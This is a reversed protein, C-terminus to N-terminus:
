NFETLNAISNGMRRQVLAIISSLPACHIYAVQIPFSNCFIHGCMTATPDDCPDRLCIRCYLPSQGNTAASPVEAHDNQDPLSELSTVVSPLRVCSSAASSPQSPASTAVLYARNERVYEPISNASVFVISHDSLPSSPTSSRDADSFYGTSGESTMPSHLPRNESHLHDDQTIRRSGWSGHESPTPSPVLNRVFPEGSETLPQLESIRVHPSHVQVPVLISNAPSETSLSSSTFDPELGPVLPDRELPNDVQEHSMDIDLVTPHDNPTEPPSMNHDQTEPYTLELSFDPQSSGMREYVASDQVIAHADLASHQELVNPHCPITDCEMSAFGSQPNIVNSEETLKMAVDSPCMPDDLSHHEHHLPLPTQASTSHKTCLESELEVLSQQDQLYMGQVPVSCDVSLDTAGQSELTMVLDCSGVLSDEVVKPEIAGLPDTPLTNEEPESTVVRDPVKENVSVTSTNTRKCINCNCPREARECITCACSDVRHQSEHAELAVITAVPKGCTGCAFNAVPNPAAVEVKPSQTMLVDKDDPHEPTPKQTFSAGFISVSPQEVPATAPLHMFLTHTPDMSRMRISSVPGMPRLNKIATDANTDLISLRMTNIWPNKPALNDIAFAALSAISREIINIWPTKLASNDIAFAALSAISREITNIWPKKLASNDIAFAALSAISQERMSTEETQLRSCVTATLASLGTSRSADVSNFNRDCWWWAQLHQLQRRLSLHTYALCNERVIPSLLTVVKSNDELAWVCYSNINSASILAVCRRFRYEVVICSLCALGSYRQLVPTWLDNDDSGRMDGTSLDGNRGAVRGPKLPAFRPLKSAGTSMTLELDSKKQVGYKRRGQLVPPDFSSDTSDSSQNEWLPESMISDEFRVERRRERSATTLSISTLSPSTMAPSHLHNVTSPAQGPHTVALYARAERLYDPTVNASIDMGASEPSISSPTALISATQSGGNPVPVQLRLMPVGLGVPRHSPSDDSKDSMRSADEGSLTSWGSSSMPSAGNEPLKIVPSNTEPSRASATSEQDSHSAGNLEQSPFLAPPDPRPSFPSRFDTSSILPTGVAPVNSLPSHEFDPSESHDMTHGTELQSVKIGCIPPPSLTRSSSRSGVSSRTLVRQSLPSSYGSASPPLPVSPAYPLIMILLFVGHRTRSSQSFLSMIWLMPTSIKGQQLSAVAHGSLFGVHQYADADAFRLECDMCKPHAVFHRIHNQLSESCEFQWQCLHCYAEPHETAGHMAFEAQDSFGVQCKDCVPHNRSTLYHMSLEGPDFLAGDCLHCPIQPHITETHPRIYSMQPSETTSVYAKKMPTCRYPAAHDALHENLLDINAFIGEHCIPCSHASAIHERLVEEEPCIFECMGCTFSHKAVTHDYLASPLKFVDNCLLCHFSHKVATHDDLASQLKFVDNCLLCHFSHKAATHDDLALQLKFVNNCLLCRYSAPPSVPRPPEPHSTQRHADNKFGLDCEVCKPHADKSSQLYHRQLGEESGATASRPHICKKASTELPHAVRIHGYLEDASTFTQKCMSCGLCVSPQAKPVPHSISQHEELAGSSSFSFDMGCPGCPFTVPITAKAKSAAAPPDKPGANHDVRVHTSLETTTMFTLSCGAKCKYHRKSALHQILAANNKLDKQCFKCSIGAVVHKMKIHTELETLSTAQTGPSPCLPCSPM